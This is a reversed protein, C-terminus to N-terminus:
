AAPELDLFVIASRAFEDLYRPEIVGVKQGLKARHTTMIKDAMMRSASKLGNSESPEVEIRFHSVDEPNSTLLCVTVSDLMDFLDSQIIVCPRPKRAYGAGAITWIEGRKM